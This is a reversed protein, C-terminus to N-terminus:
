GGRTVYGGAPLPEAIDPQLQSSRRRRSLDAPHPGRASRVKAAFANDRRM